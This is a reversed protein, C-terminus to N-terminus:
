DTVLCKAESDWIDPKWEPYKNEDFITVLHDKISLSEQNKM